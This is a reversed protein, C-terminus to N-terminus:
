RPLSRSRNSVQAFTWELEDLKVRLESSLHLSLRVRRIARLWDAVKASTSESSGLLKDTVAANTAQVAAIPQMKTLISLM